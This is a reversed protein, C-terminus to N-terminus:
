GGKPTSWHITKQGASGGKDDTGTAIGNQRNGTLSLGPLKAVAESKQGTLTHTYIGMTLNTDNHRMISQAVKPHVKTAALLTGIEHRLAHFDFYCGTDDKYAIGANTM